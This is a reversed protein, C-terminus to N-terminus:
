TPSFSSTDHKVGIAVIKGHLDAISQIPSNKRVVIVSTLNSDRIAITRIAFLGLAFGHQAFWCQFGDWITVVKPDYAVAGLILPKIM